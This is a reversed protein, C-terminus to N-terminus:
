QPRRARYGAVGRLNYLHAVSISALRAARTDWFVLLVRQMLYKTAPGPLADHLTDTEALLAIDAATDQRAPPPYRKAVGRQGCFKM